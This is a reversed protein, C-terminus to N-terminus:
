MHSCGENKEIRVKCQPCKRVDRTLAFCTFAAQQTNKCPTGEHWSKQCKFCAFTGCHTCEIKHDTGTKVVDKECQINPCWIANPNQDIKRSLRLRQLREYDKETVNAVVIQEPLDGNRCICRIRSMDTNRDFQCTIQNTVCNKCCSCDTNASCDLKIEDKPENKIYCVQCLYFPSHKSEELGCWVCELTNENLKTIESDLTKTLDQVIKARCNIFFEFESDVKFYNISKSPKIKTQVLSKHTTKCRTKHQRTLCLIKLEWIGGCQNCKKVLLLKKGKRM